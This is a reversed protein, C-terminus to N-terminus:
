EVCQYYIPNDPTAGQAVCGTLIGLAALVAVVKLM